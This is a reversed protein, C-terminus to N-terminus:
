RGGSAIVCAWFPARQETEREARARASKVEAEMEGQRVISSNTVNLPFAVGCGSEHRPHFVRGQIVCRDPVVNRGEVAFRPSAHHIDDMTAIWALWERNCATLEAVFVRAVEPRVDRPDNADDSRWKTEEFIDASM